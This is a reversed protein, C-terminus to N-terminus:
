RFLFIHVSKEFFYEFQKKPYMLYGSLDPTEAQTPPAHTNEKKKKIANIQTPKFSQACWLCTYMDEEEEETWVDPVSTKLRILELCNEEAQGLSSQQHHLNVTIQDPTTFTIICQM